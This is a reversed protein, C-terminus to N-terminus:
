KIEEEYLSKNGDSNQVTLEETLNGVDVKKVQTVKRKRIRVEAVEILRKSVVVEEAYIPIVKEM